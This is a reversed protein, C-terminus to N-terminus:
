VYDPLGEPIVEYWVLNGVPRGDLLASLEEPLLEM